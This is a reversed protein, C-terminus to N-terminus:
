EASVSSMFANMCFCFLLLVAGGAFLYRRIARKQSNHVSFGEARHTAGFPAYPSRNAIAM